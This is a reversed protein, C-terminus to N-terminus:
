KDKSIGGAGWAVHWGTIDDQGNADAGRSQIQPLPPPQPAPPGPPWHAPAQFLGTAGLSECSFVM